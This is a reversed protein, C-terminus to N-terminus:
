SSLKGEAIRDSQATVNSLQLDLDSVLAIIEERSSFTGYVYGDPRIM